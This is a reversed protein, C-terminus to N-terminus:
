APPLPRNCRTTNHSTFHPQPPLEPLLAQKNISHQPADLVRTQHSLSAGSLSRSCPFYTLLNTPAQLKLLVSDINTPTPTTSLGPQRLCAMVEGIHASGRSGLGIVGLRKWGLMGSVFRPEPSPVRSVAQGGTRSSSIGLAAHHLRSKSFAENHSLRDIQM